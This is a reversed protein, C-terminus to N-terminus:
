LLTVHIHLKDSLEQQNM